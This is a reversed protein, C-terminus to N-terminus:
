MCSATTRDWSLWFRTIGNSSSRTSPRTALALNVVQFGSDVALQIADFASGMQGPGPPAPPLSVTATEGVFEDNRLWQPKRM